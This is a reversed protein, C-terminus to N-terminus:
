MWQCYLTSRNSQWELVPYTCVQVNCLQKHLTCQEMIKGFNVVLVLLYEWLLDHSATIQELRDIRPDITVFITDSTGQTPPILVRECMTKRGGECHTVEVLLHHHVVVRTGEEPVAPGAAFLGPLCTEAALWSVM